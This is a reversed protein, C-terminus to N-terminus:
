QGAGIKEEILAWLRQSRPGGCLRLFECRRHKFQMVEHDDRCIDYEVLERASIEDLARSQRNFLGCRFSAIVRTDDSISADTNPLTDTLPM